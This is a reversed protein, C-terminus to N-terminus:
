RGTEKQQEMWSIREVTPMRSWTADLIAFLDDDHDGRAIQDTVPDIDYTKSM